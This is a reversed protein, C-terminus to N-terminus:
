EANLADVPVLRSAKWAPYFGFLTGTLVAFGLAALCGEVSSETRMGYHQVLPLILFSIGVGLVGGILSIAASETLFEGLIMKRSAGLAKLVGIEGTREKVSVFLVNMIGIGGVLFVIAAMAGLLMTLIRNSSEAAQMKSGADSFTFKANEYNMALVEQVAEEVSSVLNVDEAIVTIVPNISSGAVYKVGTSYPVFIAEDPSIGASVTQSSELVGVITYSRDSLYLKEGVADEASGFLEKARSSGLVCVRASSDDDASTFMEGAAASLNSLSFYEEKVGAVTYSLAETLDAGEVSARTTYSITAGTIGTVFLLIDDVDEQALTIKEQNMRDDTLDSESEADASESDADRSSTDAGLASDAGEQGNMGPMGGAERFAGAAEPDMGNGGGSESGSGGAPVGSNGSANGPGNGSAGGNEGGDPRSRREGGFDGNGGNGGPMMGDGGSQSSGNRGQREGRSAGNRGPRQSFGGFFNGFSFGGAGATPETGAYDYSVDIAGANLSNFQEAVDKQGGRGIAIVLVITAAGVVIGISTMVTKFKNQSINILVLRLMERLKMVKWGSEGIGKRRLGPQREIVVM